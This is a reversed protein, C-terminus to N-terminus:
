PASAAPPPPAAPASPQPPAPTELTPQVVEGRPVGPGSGRRGRAKVPGQPPASEAPLHRLALALVEDMTRVPHFSLGNRVDEPFESL